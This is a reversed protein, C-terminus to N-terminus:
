ANQSDPKDVSGLDDDGLSNGVVLLSSELLDGEFRQFIKERYDNAHNYDDNTIIIRSSDGYIYDKEMTGHLKYLFQSDGPTRKSLDFNSSTVKLPLGASKFSQEVLNDYNTSYISKWPFRSISSFGGSLKARSSLEQLIEILKHRGKKKQFITAADPLSFKSLDDGLEDSLRSIIKEVSPGGSPLSAGAGILLVTNSADINKVLESIEITM